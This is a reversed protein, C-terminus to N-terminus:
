KCWLNVVAGSAKFTAECHNNKPLPYFPECWEIPIDRGSISCGVVRGSNRQFSMRGKAAKASISSTQTNETKELKIASNDPELKSKSTTQKSTNNSKSSKNTSKTSQKSSSAAVTKTSSSSSKRKSYKAAFNKDVSSVLQYTM